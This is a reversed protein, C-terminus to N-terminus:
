TPFFSIMCTFAALLHSTLTLSAVTGGTRTSKCVYRTCQKFSSVRPGIYTQKISDMVGGDSILAGDLFNVEGYYADSPREGDPVEGFTLDMMNYGGTLLKLVGRQPVLINLSPIMVQSSLRMCDDIDAHTFTDFYSSISGKVFM